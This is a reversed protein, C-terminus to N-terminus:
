RRWHDHFYGGKSPALGFRLAATPSVGPVTYTKPGKGRFRLKVEQDIPFYEAYSIADSRGVQFEISTAADVAQDIGEAFEEVTQLIREAQGALKLLGVAM